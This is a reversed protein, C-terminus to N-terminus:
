KWSSCFHESQKHSGGLVRPAEWVFQSWEDNHKPIHWPVPMCGRYTIYQSRGRRYGDALVMEAPGLGDCEMSKRVQQFRARYNWVTCIEPPPSTTENRAGHGSPWTQNKSTDLSTFLHESITDELLTTKIVQSINTFMKKLFNQANLLNRDSFPEM